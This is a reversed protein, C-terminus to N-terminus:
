GPQMCQKNKEKNKKKNLLDKREKEAKEKKWELEWMPYDKIQHDTKGCKLCGGNQSQEPNKEQLPPSKKTANLVRKFLKKFKRSILDLDDDDINSEDSETSKHGLIKEKNGEGRKDINMEYTKLNEFLEDLTM